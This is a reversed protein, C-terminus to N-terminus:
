RPSTRRLVFLSDDVSEWRPLDLDEVPEWREFAHRSPELAESSSLRLEGAFVLTDGDYADLCQAAMPEDEPPWCLFLTRGPHRHLLRPGGPMVETWQREGAHWRNRPDPPPYRDFALIDGGAQRVLWAWYGTGAGMEVLPAHRLLLEIAENTPVAWAYRAVMRQRAVYREFTLKRQHPPVRWTPMLARFEDLYPNELPPLVVGIRAASASRPVSPLM